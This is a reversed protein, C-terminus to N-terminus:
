ILVQLLQAHSTQTTSPKKNKNYTDSNNWFSCVQGKLTKNKKLLVYWTKTNDSQIVWSLLFSIGAEIKAAHLNGMIIMIVSHSNGHSVQHSNQKKFHV